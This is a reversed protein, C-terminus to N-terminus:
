DIDNDLVKVAYAQAIETLTLFSEIWHAKAPDHEALRLTLFRQQDIRTNLAM